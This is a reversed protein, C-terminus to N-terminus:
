NILCFWTQPSTNILSSTTLSDQGTGKNDVTGISAAFAAFVKANISSIIILLIIGVIIKRKKM